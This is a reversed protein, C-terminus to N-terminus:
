ELIEGEDVEVIYGEVADRWPYKAMYAKTLAFPQDETLFVGSPLRKTM